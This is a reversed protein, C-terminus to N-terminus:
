CLLWADDDADDDVVVLKPEAAPPTQCTRPIKTRDRLEARARTRQREAGIKITTL